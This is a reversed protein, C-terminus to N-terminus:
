TDPLLNMDCLLANSTSNGQYGTMMHFENCSLEQMDSVRDGQSNCQNSLSSLNGADYYYCPDGLSIGWQSTMNISMSCRKWQSAGIYTQPSLLPLSDCPLNYATVYSTWCCWMCVCNYAWCIIYNSRREVLWWTDSMYQLESATLFRIRISLCLSNFSDIFFGLVCFYNNFFITDLTGWVNGKPQGLPLLTVGM